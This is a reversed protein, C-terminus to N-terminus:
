CLHLPVVVCLCIKSITEFYPDVGTIWTSHYFLCLKSACSLNLLKKKGPLETVSSAFLNAHHMDILREIM